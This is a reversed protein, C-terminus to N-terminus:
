WTGVAGGVTKKKGNRRPQSFIVHSLNVDDYRLRCRHGRWGSAVTIHPERGGAPGGYGLQLIFPQSKAQSNDGWFINGNSIM